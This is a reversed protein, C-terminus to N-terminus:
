RRGRFEEFWDRVVHVALPQENTPRELVIFEQGSRAADFQLLGFTRKEFLAKPTGIEVTGRAPLVAVAM